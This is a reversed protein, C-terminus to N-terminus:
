MTDLISNALKIKSDEIGDIISSYLTDVKKYIISETGYKSKAAETAYVFPNYLSLLNEGKISLAFSGWKSAAKIGMIIVAMDKAQVSLAITNGSMARDWKLKGERTRDVIKEVLILGADNTDEM